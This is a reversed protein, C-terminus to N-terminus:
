ISNNIKEQNPDSLKCKKVIPSFNFMNIGFPIHIRKILEDDGIGLKDAFKIRCAEEADLWEADESPRIVEDSKFFKIIHHHNNSKLWEIVRTKWTLDSDGLSAGFICLIDTESLIDIAQNDNTIDYNSIFARKTLAREDSVSELFVNQDAFQKPNDAGLVLGDDIYGHAHVVKGINYKSIYPNVMTVGHVKSFSDILKDIAKTYNLTIFNIKNHGNDKYFFIDRQNPILGEKISNVSRNIEENFLSDDDMDLIKLFKTEEQRLYEKLYRKFDLVCERLQRVSEYNPSDMYIAIEFDRWYETVNMNLAHKKLTESYLNKQTLFYSDLVEKYSSKIGCQRDFGNGLLFTLNMNM